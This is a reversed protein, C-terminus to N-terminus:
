LLREIRRAVNDMKEYFCSRLLSVFTKRNTPSSNEVTFPM